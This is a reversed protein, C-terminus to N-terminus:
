QLVGLRQQLLTSSTTYLLSASEQPCIRAAAAFSALTAEHFGCVILKKKGPYTVIDGIAYIGPESTEFTAADVSLQKREMALGWQALPGLQPSIGLCVLLTDVPLTLTAAASTDVDVGTLQENKVRISTIQGEQFHLRGSARLAALEALSQASAQLVNRRHLLTVSQAPQALPKALSVAATVAAEDGGVVIVHKGNCRPLSAHRYFLQSGRYRNLGEIKLERPVFAGVGAAIFLTRTLFQQQSTDQAVTSVLWRGDAQQRLLSVLRSLHFQPAFPRVQQQLKRVLERGTTCPLGPIDYLTKDAYLEICQGGPEDLADVVHCAIGHLGLQFVAFLGAPGAGVILADTEIM